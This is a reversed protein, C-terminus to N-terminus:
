RMCKGPGTPDPTYSQCWLTSPYCWNGQSPQCSGLYGNYGVAGVIKKMEEENLSHFDLKLKKLNKM